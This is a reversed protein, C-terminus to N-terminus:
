QARCPLKLPFSWHDAWFRRCVARLARVECTSATVGVNGKESVVRKAVGTDMSIAGAKERLDRQKGKVELEVESVASEM